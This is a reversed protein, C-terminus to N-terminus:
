LGVSATRCQGVWATWVEAKCHLVAGRQKDGPFAAHLSSRAASAVYAYGDFQALYWSPLLAKLYPALGRGAATAIAGMVQCSESRVSRNADMVLRAFVSPWSPLISCVDEAPKEVALAKLAQLAKLRTVADRKSLRQLQQSM